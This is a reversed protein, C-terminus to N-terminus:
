VEMHWRGGKKGGEWGIRWMRENVYEAGRRQRREGKERGRGVGEQGGVERGRSVQVRRM